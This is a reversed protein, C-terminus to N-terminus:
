REHTVTLILEDRHAAFFEPFDVFISSGKSYWTGDKSRIEPNWSGAWLGMM